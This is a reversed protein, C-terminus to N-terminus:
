FQWNQENMFEESSICRIHLMECVDPIKISGHMKGSSSTASIESTVVAGNIHKAKAIVFPDAWFSGSRIQKEGSKQFSEITLIDRIYREENEDQPISFVHRHSRMWELLHEQSGGYKEIEKRVEDVSHISGNSVAEDLKEWFSGFVSSYYVRANVFFGTDLVYKNM